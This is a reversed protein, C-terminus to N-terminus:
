PTNWYHFRDHESDYDWGGSAPQDQAVRVFLKTLRWAEIYLLLTRHMRDSAVWIGKLRAKTDVRHIFIHSHIVQNALQKVSLEVRRPRNLDYFDEIDQRKHRPVARGRIAPYATWKRRDVETVSTLKHSELLKRIAFLGYMVDREVRFSEAQTAIACRRVRDISRAFRVLDSRWPESEYIM